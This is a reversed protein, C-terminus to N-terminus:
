LMVLNTNIKNKITFQSILRPFGLCGPHSSYWSICEVDHMLFSIENNPFKFPCVECFISVSEYVKVPDYRTSCRNFVLLHCSRAPWKVHSSLLLASLSLFVSTHAVRKYEFYGIPIPPVKKGPCLLSIPHECTVKASKSFCGNPSNNRYAFSVCSLNRGSLMKHGTLVCIAWISCNLKM